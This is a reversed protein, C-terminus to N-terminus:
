PGQTRLQRKYAAPPPCAYKSLLAMTGKSVPHQLTFSTRIGLSGCCPKHPNVHKLTQLNLSVLSLGGGQSRPNSSCRLDSKQAQKREKDEEVELRLKPFSHSPDELVSTM